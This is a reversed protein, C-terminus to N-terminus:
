KKPQGNEDQPKDTGEVPDILDDPTLLCDRLQSFWERYPVLQEYHAFLIDWWNDQRLLGLLQEFVEPDVSSELVEATVEVDGGKEAMRVIIPLYMKLTAALAKYEDPIIPQNQETQTQMNQEPIQAVPAPQQGRGGMLTGLLSGLAPGGYELTKDLWDKKEGGGSEGNSLEKVARVTEVLDRMPANKETPRNIFAVALPILLTLMDKVTTDPRSNGSMITALTKQQEMMMTVMLAQNDKAYTILGQSDTSPPRDTKELLTKMMALLEPTGNAPQTPHLRERKQMEGEIEKAISIPPFNKAITGNSRRAVLKYDGGGWVNALYNPSFDKVPCECCWSFKTENPGRRHVTLMAGADQFHEKCFRIIEILDRDEELAIEEAQQELKTPKKEESEEFTSAPQETEEIAKTKKM